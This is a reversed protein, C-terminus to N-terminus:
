LVASHNLLASIVFVEFFGHSTAGTRAMQIAKEWENSLVLGDTQCNIVLVTKPPYNKAAKKRLAALIQESLDIIIKHGDYAVANSVITRTKSDRRIRRVGFSVGGDHILQNALHHEHLRGAMTVEVCVRKPVFGLRVLDGCSWLVADYPQSGSKWRVKIRRGVQYRAQVYRAIPFLEEILRKEVKTKRLRLKEVGAPSKKVEEFLNYVGRCFDFGELLQNDFTSLDALSHNRM